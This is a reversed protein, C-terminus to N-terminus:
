GNAPLSGLYADACNLTEDRVGFGRYRTERMILKVWGDELRSFAQGLAACMQAKREASESEMDPPHVRFACVYAGSKTRIIGGKLFREYPMLSVFGQRRGRRRSARTIDNERFFAM